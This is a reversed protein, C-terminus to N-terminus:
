VIGGVALVRQMMLVRGAWCVGYKVLRKIDAKITCHSPKILSIQTRMSFVFVIPLFSLWLTIDGRRALRDIIERQRFLRLSLNTM